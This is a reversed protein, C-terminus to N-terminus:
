IIPTRKYRSIRPTSKPLLERDFVDRDLLNPLVKTPLGYAETFENGDVRQPIFRPSYALGLRLYPAEPGTISYTHDGVQINEHEVWVGHEQFVGYFYGNPSIGATISTTYLNLLREQIFASRRLNYSAPITRSLIERLCDIIPVRFVMRNTIPDMFDFHDVNSDARYWTTIDVPLPM